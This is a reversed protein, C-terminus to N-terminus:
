ILHSSVFWITKDLERNIGTCLDATVKDNQMEATETLTYMLDAFYQMASKILTLHKKGEKINDPYTKLSSTKAVIQLTGLAVGGLQVVREALSDIYEEVQNAIKDFLEHLSLFNEGKVNWHAQKAQLKLDISHALAHNLLIILSHTPKITKKM